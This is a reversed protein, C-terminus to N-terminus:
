PLKGPRPLPRHRARPEGPSAFAYTVNRGEECSVTTADGSDVEGTDVFVVQAVSVGPALRARIKEPRWNIKTSSVIISDRRWVLLVSDQTQDLSSTEVSNSDSGKMATM